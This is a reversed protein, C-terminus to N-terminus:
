RYRFERAVLGEFTGEPGRACMAAIRAHTATPGQAVVEDPAAREDCIACGWDLEDNPLSRGSPIIEALAADLALEISNFFEPAVTSIAFVLDLCDIDTQWEQDVANRTMTLKLIGNGRISFQADLQTGRVAFRINSIDIHTSCVRIRRSHFTNIM